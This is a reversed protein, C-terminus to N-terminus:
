PAPPDIIEAKYEIEQHKTQKNGLVKALHLSNARSVSGNPNIRVRSSESTVLNGLSRNCKVLKKAESVVEQPLPDESIIEGHTNPNQKRKTQVNQGKITNCTATELAILCASSCSEIHNPYVGQWEAAGRRPTVHVSTGGAQPVAAGPVDPSSVHLQAIQSGCPAARNM